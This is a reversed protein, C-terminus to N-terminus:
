KYAASIGPGSSSTSVTAAPTYTGTSSVIQYTSGEAVSGAVSISGGLLWSGSGTFSFGNTVAYNGFVIDNANTTTIATATWATTSLNSVATTSAVDLAQSALGSVESCVLAPAYTGGGSMTLTVSTVGSVHSLHFMGLAETGATIFTGTTDSTFNNSNNDQLSVFTFTSSTNYVAAACILMNGNTPSITATGTFSNYTGGEQTQVVAIPTTGGGISAKGGIGGKGGVGQAFSLPCALFFIIVLRLRM